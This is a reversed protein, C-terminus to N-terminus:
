GAVFNSGSRIKIANGVMASTFGAAASTLTSSNQSAALDTPTYPSTARLGYNTGAGSIAPDWGAGNNDNGTSAATPNNQVYWIATSNVAM